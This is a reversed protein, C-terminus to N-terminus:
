SKEKGFDIIELNQFIELKLSELIRFELNYSELTRFELNQGM